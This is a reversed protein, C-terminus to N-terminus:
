WANLRARCVVPMRPTAASGAASAPARRHFRKVQGLLRGFRPDILRRPQAFVGRLGRRGAYELGCGACRVSMSMEALACRPM